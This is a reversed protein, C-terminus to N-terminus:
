KINVFIPVEVYLLCNFTVILVIVTYQFSKKKIFGFRSTNQVSILKDLAFAVLIWGPISSLGVTAFTFLKCMANIELDPAYQFIYIGIDKVLQFVIFCEALALARCYTSISNKAFTQRSFVVFSLINGILGMLTTPIRIISLATIIGIESMSLSSTSNNM